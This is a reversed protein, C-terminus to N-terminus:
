RVARNQTQNSHLTARFGRNAQPLDVEDGALCELVFVKLSAYRNCPVQSYHHLFRPLSDRM